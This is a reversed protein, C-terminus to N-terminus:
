ADDRHFGFFFDRAASARQKPAFPFATTWSAPVAEIAFIQNGAPFALSGLVRGTRVDLAHIACRSRSVDLGPAYQAFRPIVRSTGVFAVGGAFALGRTWGPLRAIADFRGDRAIGVAGYGSDDVWLVGDHLRASHPRTLGRVVPERTAGSFVVGRRDVPFRAHGPRYRGEREASASFFSAALNEGAAISNLQLVNRDDIPGGDRDVSRPWWVTRARGDDDIAVVANRGVANAHLRGGVMALDHVYTRGPLYATRVPALRHALDGGSARALTVVANPNRTAAVYVTKRAADHAIGSPHPL